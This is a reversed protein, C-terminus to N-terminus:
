HKAEVRGTCIAVRLSACFIIRVLHKAEVRGTCIAVVPLNALVQYCPRQRWVGRASQLPVARRHSWAERYKAEVRGTCIAVRQGYEKWCSASEKGGCAGHLNCSACKDILLSSSQRQRWVGRASQLETHQRQGVHLRRQRWVGRASQLWPRQAQNKRSPGKGGCAGHLNCRLATPLSLRPTRRQRWVGRASQLGDASATHRVTTGKAEVRGTCIAVM